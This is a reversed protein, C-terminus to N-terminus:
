KDLQVQAIVDQKLVNEQEQKQATVVHNQANPSNQGSVMGEMSQVIFLHLFCFM